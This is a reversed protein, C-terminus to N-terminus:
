IKIEFMNSWRNKFSIKRVDEWNIYKPPYAYVLTESNYNKNRKEQSYLSLTHPLKWFPGFHCLGPYNWIDKHDLGIAPPKWIDQKIKALVVIEDNM